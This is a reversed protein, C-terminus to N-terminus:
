AVVWKARCQPPWVDRRAGKCCISWMRGEATRRIIQLAAFCDEAQGTLLEGTVPLKCSLLYDDGSECVELTVDHIGHDPNFAKLRYLDINM